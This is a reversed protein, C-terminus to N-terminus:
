TNEANAYEKTAAIHGRRQRYELENIFAELAAIEGISGVMFDHDCERARYASILGLVKGRIMGDVIEKAVSEVLSAAKGEEIAEINREQSTM